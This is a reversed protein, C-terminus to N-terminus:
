CAVILHFPIDKPNGAPDTTQVVVSGDPGNSVGVLGIPPATTDTTGLTATYACTTVDRKFRITYRGSGAETHGGSDANGRVFKGEAGVAVFYTPGTPGAPGQPGIPGTQGRLSSRASKSLDATSLSRDRVESSSVAAARIQASGVSNRALHAAAVAAGGGLALFLALTAVVNAYTLREIIKTLM